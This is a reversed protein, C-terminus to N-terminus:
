VVFSSTIRLTKEGAVMKGWLGCKEAHNFMITVEEYPSLTEMLHKAHVYCMLLSAGPPTPSDASSDQVVFHHCMLSGQVCESCRQTHTYMCRVRLSSARDQDDFRFLSLTSCIFWQIFLYLFFSLSCVYPSLSLSVLVLCRSM